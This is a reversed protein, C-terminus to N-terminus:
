GPGITRARLSTPLGLPAGARFADRAGDARSSPHRLHGSFGRGRPDVFREHVDAGEDGVGVPDGVPHGLQQLPAVGSREALLELHPELLHPDGALLQVRLLFRDDLPLADDAL